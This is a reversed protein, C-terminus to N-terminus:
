NLKNGVFISLLRVPLLVAWIQTHESIGQLSRHDQAGGYVCCSYVSCRCIDAGYFFDDKLKAVSNVVGDCGYICFKVTQLSALSTEEM